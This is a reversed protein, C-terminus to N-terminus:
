FKVGKAGYVKQIVNGLKTTTGEYIPLHIGSRGGVGRVIIEM